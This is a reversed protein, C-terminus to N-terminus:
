LGKSYGCQISHNRKSTNAEIIKFLKPLLPWNKKKLAEHITVSKKEWTETTLHWVLLNLGGRTGGAQIKNSKM